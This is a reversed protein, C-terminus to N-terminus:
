ILEFTSYRYSVLYSSIPAGSSSVLSYITNTKVEFRNANASTKKIGVLVCVDRVTNQDVSVPYKFQSNSDCTTLSASGAVYTLVYSNGQATVKFAYEIDPTFTGPVFGSIPVGGPSKIAESISVMLSNTSDAVENEKIELNSRLILSFATIVTTSIIVLVVLMEILSLAKKNKKIQFM